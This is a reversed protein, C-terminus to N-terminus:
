LRDVLKYSVPELTQGAYVVASQNFNVLLTKDGYHTQRIGEPMTTDLAAIGAAHCQKRLLTQILSESLAGVTIVKDRQLVAALNEMPGDQYRYLITADEAKYSECWLQAVHQDNQIGEAMISQKITPRLSDFNGLRGGIIHALQQFQGKEAAKGYQDRFDTRPGFLMYADKSADLIAQASEPTLLTLAPCVVLKYSRKHLQSPHVIDVNLGLKRLSSYFLVFQYWYSLDQNHAQQNFIWLSDYDHVLAVTNESQALSFETCDLQAIEAYGRDPDANQQLLGSHMIEQAFHSARFRFYVVSSAGHAWAQASWLKVAGKAPLPNYQAWNAHGCQQEMVWFHTQSKLGRYIDHNLSVLDPSGTRAYDTKVQESEWTAFYELMGIPYSDWAVFDLSEALKYLDCEASFIVCNHTIFHQPCLERLIDIQLQQFEVIMDSCFRQYDLKHSPNAQRVATLNPAKIQEWASYDQSWFANGWAKNLQTLTSYKQQLWQSFRIESAGGYSVTTGEHGLENDTQWGKVAPNDAYRKAMKSVIRCCHQRYIESAHDYHRRSGFKKVQGNEDVPLIEPHKEILWAPPTATPTGLVIHLGHSAYVEIAQDLWDWDYHGERPEIKAWSFEALRVWTLGLERQKSAHMHWDSPDVHEPYDCVGLSLM